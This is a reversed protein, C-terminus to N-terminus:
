YEDQEKIHKEIFVAPETNQWIIKLLIVLIQVLFLLGYGLLFQSISKNGNLLVPILFILFAFM